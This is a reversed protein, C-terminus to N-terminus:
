CVTAESNVLLQLSYMINPLSKDGKTHSTYCLFGNVASFEISEKPKKKSGENMIGQEDIDASLM